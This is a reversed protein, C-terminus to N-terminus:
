RSIDLILRRQNHGGCSTPTDSAQRRSDKVQATTAVAPVGAVTLSGPWLQLVLRRGGLFFDRIVV